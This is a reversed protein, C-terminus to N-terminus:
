HSFTAPEAHSQLCPVAHYCRSEGSEPNISVAAAHLFGIWDGGHFRRIGHATIFATLFNGSRKSTSPQRASKCSLSKFNTSLMPPLRCQREYAFFKNM